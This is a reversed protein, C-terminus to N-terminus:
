LGCCRTALEKKSSIFNIEDCVHVESLTNVVQVYSQVCLDFNLYAISSKQSSIFNMEDFFVPKRWWVRTHHIFPNGQM